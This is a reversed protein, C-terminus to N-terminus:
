IKGDTDVQRSEAVARAIDCALRVNNMFLDINTRLARGDSLEVIRALLYPMVDRGSIELQEMDAVARDIYVSIEDIPVESAQPVPNAVLMGQNLDLQRQINYARAIEGVTDVRLPVPCGSSRSYFAPFEDTQFGIVPVGQTELYELTAKLNLIAKAGASVVIIPTRSFEILDASVDFSDAAGRHVGGIGGTAFVDIGARFAIAMTASVTTAGHSGRALSLSLDRRSIKPIGDSRGLLDVEDDSLGAKIIGHLIATIAPVAGMSRVIACAEQATQVNQPYPMGHSIITSELAVVPKGLGQAGRVEGSVVLM